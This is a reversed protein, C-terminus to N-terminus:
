NKFKFVARKVFEPENFTVATMYADQPSCLLLCGKEMLIEASGRCALRSAPKVKLFDDKEIYKGKKMNETFDLIAY